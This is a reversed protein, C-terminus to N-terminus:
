QNYSYLAMLAEHIRASRFRDDVLCQLLVQEGQGLLIGVVNQTQADTYCYERVYQWLRHGFYSRRVDDWGDLHSLPTLAQPPVASPSRSGRIVRRYVRAPFLLGLVFGIVLAALALYEVTHFLLSGLYFFAMLILNLHRGYGEDVIEAWNGAFVIHLLVIVFATGAVTTTIQTGWNEITDAFRDGVMGRFHSKPSM